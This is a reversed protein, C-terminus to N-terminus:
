FKGQFVFVTPIKSTKQLSINELLLEREFSKKSIGEIDFVFDVNEHRKKEALYNPMSLCLKLKGSSQITKINGNWIRECVGSNIFLKM